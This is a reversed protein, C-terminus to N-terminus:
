ESSDDRDDSSDYREESLPSVSIVLTSKRGRYGFKVICIEDEKKFSLLTEKGELINLIRWGYDPMFKKYFKVIDYPFAKGTYELIGVRTKEADFIFSKLPLFKFGSPVPLDNFRATQSTELDRVRSHYYGLPACGAIFIFLIVFM